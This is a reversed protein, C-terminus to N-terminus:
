LTNMYTQKGGHQIQEQYHALIFPVKSTLLELSQEALATVCTLFVPGWLEQHLETWRAVGMCGGAVKRSMCSWWHNFRVGREDQLLSLGLSAEFRFCTGKLCQSVFVFGHSTGWTVARELKIPSYISHLEKYIVTFLDIRGWISKQRIRSATRFNLHAKFTDIKCASSCAPQHKKKSM